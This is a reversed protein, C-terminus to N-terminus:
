VVVSRKAASAAAVLQHLEEDSVGPLEAKEQVKFSM